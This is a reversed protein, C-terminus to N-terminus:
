HNLMPHKLVADAMKAFRKAEREMTSILKKTREKIRQQTHTFKDRFDVLVRFEEETTMPGYCKNRLVSGRREEMERADEGSEFVANQDGSLLKSDLSRNLHCRNRGALHAYVGPDDAAAGREAHLLQLLRAEQAELSRQLSVQHSVVFLLLLLQLVAVFLLLTRPVSSFSFALFRIFSPQRTLSGESSELPSSPPVERCGETHDAARHKRDPSPNERRAKAHVADQASSVQATERVNAKDGREGDGGTRRRARPSFATSANEAM